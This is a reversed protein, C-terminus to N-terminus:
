REKLLLDKSRPQRLSQSRIHQNDWQGPLGSSEPPDLHVHLRVCPRGNVGGGHMTSAPFMCCFKQQIFRPVRSRKDKAEAKRQSPVTYICPAHHLSERRDEFVYMFSGHFKDLPVEKPWSIINDKKPGVYHPSDSHIFQCATGGAMLSFETQEPQWGDSQKPLAHSLNGYVHKKLQNSIDETNKM